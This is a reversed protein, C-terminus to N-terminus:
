FSGKLAERLAFATADDMSSVMIMVTTTGRNEMCVFIATANESSGAVSNGEIQLNGLTQSTLAATSRNICTAVDDNITRWSYYLGPAEARAPGAVVVSATAIAISWPISWLRSLVM